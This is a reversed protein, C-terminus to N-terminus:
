LIMLQNSLSEPCRSTTTYQAWKRTLDLVTTKLDDMSSSAENM